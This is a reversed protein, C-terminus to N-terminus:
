KAAPVPRPKGADDLAVYVFTAETVRVIEGNGRRQAITEISVTLSTRGVKAVEAYVSVIDGVFIPAHFVMADIAVTAVRGAARKIAPIAGAIDMQSLVWGGFIDSSANADAPRPLTRIMPEGAITTLKQPNTDAM